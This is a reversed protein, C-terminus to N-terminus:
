YFMSEDMTKQQEAIDRELREIERKLEAERAYDRRPSGESVGRERLDSLERRLQSVRQQQSRIKASASRNRSEVNGLERQRAQLDGRMGELREQAQSESWFIGGRRPDGTCSQMLGALSIGIIAYQYTKNM